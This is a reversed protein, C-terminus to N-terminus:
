LLSIMKGLALCLDPFLWSEIHNQVQATEGMGTFPSSVMLSPPEKWRVGHGIETGLANLIATRSAKAAQVKSHTLPHDNHGHVMFTKESLM